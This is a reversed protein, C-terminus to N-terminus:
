AKVTLLEELAPFLKSLASARHSARSKEEPTLEAMTRNTGAVVFVPDYGFGHEGRQTRTISGGCVGSVTRERKSEPDVLGLVCRFRATFPADRLALAGLDALLKTINAKDDGHSGAYRASHVGPRGDLADVELGSDDAIVIENSWTAIARAKKLANQEFTEGDEIVEPAGALEKLGVVHFQKLLHRFERVKGENTSALVIRRM